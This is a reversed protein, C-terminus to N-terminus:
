FIQHQRGDRTFSSEDAFKGSNIISPKRPFRRGVLWDKVM